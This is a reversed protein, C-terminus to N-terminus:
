SPSRHRQMRRRSADRAAEAKARTPNHELYDNVFVAGDQAERWLGADILERVATKRAGIMSLGVWSVLGDTAHEACYLTAHLHLRMARDSLARMDPKDLLYIGLSAKM